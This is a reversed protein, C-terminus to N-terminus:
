GRALAKNRELFGGNGNTFRATELSGNKGRVLIEAGAHFDEMFDVMIKIASRVAITEDAKNLLQRLREAKEREDPPITILLERM